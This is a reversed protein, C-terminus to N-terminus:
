VAVVPFIAPIVTVLFVTVVLPPVLVGESLLPSDLFVMIIRAVTIGM